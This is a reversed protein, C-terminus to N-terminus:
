EVNHSADEVLVSDKESIRDLIIEYRGIEIDKAFIEGRLSDIERTNDVNVVIPTQRGIEGFYIGIAFCSLCILSLIITKKM